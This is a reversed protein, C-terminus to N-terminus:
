VRVGRKWLISVFLPAGVIACMVGVPVELPYFLARGVLDTAMVFTAGLLFSSPIVRSHLHGFFIRAFHPVMLGVFGIMGAASVVVSVLASSIALFILREKQPNMGLSLMAEDGLLFADLGKRRILAFASFAVTTTFLFVSGRLDARSLDGLLWQLAGQVGFSTDLASMLAVGSSGFLGLMVGSLLLQDPRGSFMRGLTVLIATFLGAGILSFGSLGGWEFSLHLAAGVVAGLAAGSSIGLIYPECLPNFFVAQLILGAVSLGSGVGLALLWRSVRLEFLLSSDSDLPVGQFIFTVSIFVFVLIAFFGYKM